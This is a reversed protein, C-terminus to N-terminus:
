VGTRFISSYEAYQGLMSIIKSSNEPPSDLCSLVHSSEPRLPASQSQADAITRICYTSGANERAHCDYILEGVLQIQQPYNDKSIFDRKFLAYTDSILPFGLLHRAIAVKFLICNDPTCIYCMCQQNVVKVEIKQSSGSGIYLLM